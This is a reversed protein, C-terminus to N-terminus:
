ASSPMRSLWERRTPESIHILSLFFVSAVYAGKLEKAGSLRYLLHAILFHVAVNIFTASVGGIELYDHTLIGSQNLIVKVGNLADSRDPMFMAFIFTYVSMMLFLNREIWKTLRQKHITM